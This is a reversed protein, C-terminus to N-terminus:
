AGRKALARAEGPERRLFNRPEACRGAERLGSEWAQFPAGLVGAALADETLKM